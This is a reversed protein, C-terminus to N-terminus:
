LRLHHAARRDHPGGGRPAAPLPVCCGPGGAARCAGRAGGGPALRRMPSSPPPALHSLLYAAMAAPPSPSLSPPLLLSLFPLAAAGYHISDVVLKDGEEFANCHHFIFLPPLTFTRPQLPRGQADAAGPRPVLHLLTPACDVWRVCAAAPARGAVYPVNDVTVPNQFLVYYHQTFCTDHLFAFGQLSFAQKGAVSFDAAPHPHHTPCKHRRM